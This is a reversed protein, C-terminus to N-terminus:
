KWYHYILQESKIQFDNKEYFKCALINQKQTPINFNRIGNKLARTMAFHLLGQGIGKGRQNSDVSFLGIQASHTSTYSLTLLGDILGCTQHVLVENDNNEDLDNDIWKKYLSEFLTNSFKSDLFFRSFHGSQIALEYLRDRSFEHSYLCRSADPKYRVSKLVQSYVVKHDVQYFDINKSKSTDIPHMVNRLYIYILDYLQAEIELQEPNFVSSDSLRICGINMNFFDSDWTLKEIKL